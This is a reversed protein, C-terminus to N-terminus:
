KYRLFFNHKIKGIKIVMKGDEQNGSVESLNNIVGHYRNNIFLIYKDENDERFKKNVMYRQLFEYAFKEKERANIFPDEFILDVFEPIDKNQLFPITSPSFHPERIYERYPINELAPHTKSKFYDEFM